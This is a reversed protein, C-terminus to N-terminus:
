RRERQYSPGDRPLWLTGARIRAGSVPVLVSRDEFLWGKMEYHRELLSVPLYNRVFATNSDIVAAFRQERIAQIYSAQLEGADALGSKAYDSVPMQHAYVRKGARGALYGQAPMLVSGEIAAVRAALAEGARRDAESPLIGRPVRVLLVLQFLLCAAVVVALRPFRAPPAVVRLRAIAVGLVVALWAHVLILNNAAGGVKIRPILCAALVCVLVLLHFGDWEDRQRRWLALWLIPALSLVPVSLLLDHWFFWAIMGPLIGHQQQASVIHLLFHEDLVGNLLGTALGTLVALVLGYAIFRDWERFRRLSRGRDNWDAWACWVVLPGLVVAATQKTMLALFALLAALVLDRRGRAFRFRYLSAILLFTFLSDLRAVDFYLESVRWTGLFIGAAIVGLVPRGTERGVFRQIIWATGLSAVWSVLRLPLFGPGTLKSVVAGLYYYVPPYPFPVFEISPRVYLPEGRLVRMLHELSGGEMWELEFPYAVRQLSFGLYLLALGASAVVCAGLITRELREPVACPYRLPTRPRPLRRTSRRREAAM